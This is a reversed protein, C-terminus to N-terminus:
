RGLDRLSVAVAFLIILGRVIMQESVSLGMLILGNNLMGMLISGVCAGIIFGKGGTLATGGVIVAAIVTMLDSEGLTYKAAQLRGAYLLGALGACAGSVTLVLFRIRAVKIGSVRAAAPNDGTAIVHAGFRTAKLVIQGAAVAVVTWIILSHIGFFSGSGFFGTFFENIVPVSQLNTMWRAVGAFLGLTALTVLFSPLRLYAVLAGNLAGVAIGAGLGAAIGAAAPAERMVVAASLASVAVISGFSIDIEAASFAFVLGVAMVTAPATQLIINTLNRSSLFGDDHLTAAFFLFIALFGFYVVFRQPEFKAAAKALEKM